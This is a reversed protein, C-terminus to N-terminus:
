RQTGPRTTAGSEGVPRGRVARIKELTQAVKPDAFCELAVLGSQGPMFAVLDSDIWDSPEKEDAHRRGIIVSALVLTGNQPPRNISSTLASVYFRVSLTPHLSADFDGAITAAPVLTAAYPRDGDGPIKRVDRIEAVIVSYSLRDVSATGCRNDDWARWSSAERLPRCLFASHFAQHAYHSRCPATVLDM